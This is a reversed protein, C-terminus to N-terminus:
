QDDAKQSDHNPSMLYNEIEEKTLPSSISELIVQLAQIEHFSHEGSYHLRSLFTKIDNPVHEPLNYLPLTTM